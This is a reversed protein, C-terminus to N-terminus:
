PVFFLTSFLHYNKFSQPVAGGPRLFQIYFLVACRVLWLNRRAWLEFISEKLDYLGVSLLSWQFCGGLDGQPCRTVLTVPLSNRRTM